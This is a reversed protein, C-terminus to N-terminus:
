QASPMDKDRRTLDSRNNREKVNVITAIFFSISKQIYIGIVFRHSRAANRVMEKKLRSLKRV